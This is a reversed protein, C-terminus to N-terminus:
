RPAKREAVKAALKEFVEPYEKSLLVGINALDLLSHIAESYGRAANVLHKIAAYFRQQAYHDVLIRPDREGRKKGLPSYHLGGIEYVELDPDRESWEYIAYLTHVRKIMQNPTLVSV